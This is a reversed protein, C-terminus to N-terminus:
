DSLPTIEINEKQCKSLCIKRQDYKNLSVRQTVRQGGQKGHERKDSSQRAWESVKTVRWRPRNGCARAGHSRNRFWERKQGRNWVGIWWPRTSSLDLDFGNSVCSVPRFAAIRGEACCVFIHSVSFIFRLSTTQWLQWVILSPFYALFSFSFM